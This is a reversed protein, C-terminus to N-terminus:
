LCFGGVSLIDKRPREHVSAAFQLLAKSDKRVIESCRCADARIREVSGATWSASSEKLLVQFIFVGNLVQRTKPLSGDSVM